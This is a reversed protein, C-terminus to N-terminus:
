IILCDWIQDGVQQRLIGVITAQNEIIAEKTTMGKDTFETIPNSNTSDNKDFIRVGDSDAKFKTNTQNSIITIGQSINVTSTTTENQNQSWVAKETGQNCMLDYIEVANDTDCTFKIDLQNSNVELPQVAYQGEEDKQGTYFETVDTETLEYTRDNITVTATALPVLKQYKFSITYNGNAVFDPKQEFDGDQLMISTKSSANDNSSQVAVGTWYEYPNNTDSQAFWLGTNRFVNNGGSQTFTNTLGSEATQILENTQEMNYYNNALSDQIEGTQTTLLSIAGNQKDIKIETNRLFERLSIDQKTKIEQETLAPSEIISTFAGDYTFNHKLVYTDFYNENDVYIRIKDGIKLFPKGYYCVLKSDVYKLGDLRNYIATIAQQRLEANYLVYDESIIISHEGYEEISESDRQTINEDDVASSKLTVSNIPGCEITGGELTSYDSPLFTYDPDTSDSLWSLDIEDTTEDITVFSCAVKAVTQLVVRNTENNTFPNNEIPIDDNLFNTTVPTLDLQNCVDVYLDQLTINGGDYDITSVYKENIKNILNDYATIQRKNETKLDNPREVTYDGMNIYETTTDAYKVGIQATILKGILEIDDPVDLFTGDLKKIYISGVINGDVYCGSDVSFSALYNSQTLPTTENEVVIQGLRNCNAGNKCENIFNASAM